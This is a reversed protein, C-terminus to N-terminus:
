RRALRVILIQCVAAALQFSAMIANTAVPSLGVEKWLFLPQFKYCMGSGLGTLVDQAAVLAAVWFSARRTRTRAVAESLADEDDGGADDGGCGGRGACDAGARTGGEGAPAPLDRLPVLLAAEVVGIGVAALIVASLEPVTWTDSLSLFICVSVAPGAAMGVNSAAGKLTFFRARDGAPTSDAFLAELPAVQFGM